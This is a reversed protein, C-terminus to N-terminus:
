AIQYSQNSNRQSLIFDDIGNYCPNWQYSVYNDCFRKAISEIKRTGTEVATNSFKDMDACEVIRKPTFSSLAEALHELTNVGAPSVFLTGDSLYSAIDSKLAGETICLTDSKTNGVVHVWGKAACGNQNRSSSFWRYKKDSEDDLRIQMGQILSDKTCVPIFFGAQGTMRFECADENYYFGPIGRLDHLRSLESVVASRKNPNIPVTRYLNGDIIEDSLGRRRLGNRHSASLDLMRLFDLYIEHRSRLPQLLYQKIKPPVYQQSNNTQIHPNSVLEQYATKTDINRMFAYLTIANGSTKCHQCHYINKTVNMYLHRKREGCFPCNAQVEYRGLTHQAIELGCLYAVDLINIIM